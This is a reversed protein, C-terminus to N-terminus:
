EVTSDTPVENLEEYLNEETDFSESMDRQEQVYTAPDTCSNELEFQTLTANNCQIKYCDTENEACSFYECTEDETECAPINKANRFAYKYYWIDEEPDGTCEEAASDCLWVFCNESTPDCDVEVQIIYDHIVM